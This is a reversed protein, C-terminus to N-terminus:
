VAVSFKCLKRQHSRFFNNFPSTFEALSKLHPLLVSGASLLVVVIVNELEAQTVTRSHCNLDIFSQVIKM